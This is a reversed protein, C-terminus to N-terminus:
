SQKPPYNKLLKQMARDLNKQNKQQNSSPDLTKTARGTWVLTKTSPDYMDFVITGIDINSSTATGMGGFRWGGGMGFANWQRQQDLSTQYGVYLDAKDSDTLTLGKSQLQSNIADKIEADLIQNPYQAGQVVVWKYTHFQSFNTGPMSNYTVDQAALTRVAFLIAMFLLSFKRRRKMQM